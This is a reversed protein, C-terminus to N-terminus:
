AHQEHYSKLVAPPMETTELPCLFVVVQKQSLITASSLPRVTISAMFMAIQDNLELGIM